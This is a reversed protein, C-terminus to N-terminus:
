RGRAAPSRRPRGTPAPGPCRTRPGPSRAAAPPRPARRLTPEPEPRAAPVVRPERRVAVALLGRRDARRAARHRRRLAPGPARPGRRRATPPAGRRRQARTILPTSAAAGSRPRRSSAWGRAPGSWGARLGHHALGARRLRPLQRAPDVLPPERRDRPVPLGPRRDRRAARRHRPLARGAGAGPRRVRLPAALQEGYLGLDQYRWFPAWGADIRQQQRDFAHM